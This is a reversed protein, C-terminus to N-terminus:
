SSNDMICEPFFAIPVVAAAHNSRPIILGDKVSTWNTAPDYIDVDKSTTGGLAILKGNVVSIAPRNNRANPMSPFPLWVEENLDLITVSSPDDAYRGGTVVLFDKGDLVMTTCGSNYAQTTPLHTWEQTDVNVKGAIGGGLVYLTRGKFTACLQAVKKPLRVNMEQWDNNAFDYVYIKDSYIWQTPGPGDYRAHFGGASYLKGNGHDMAYGSNAILEPMDSLRSWQRTELDLGHCDRFSSFPPSNGGLGGCAILTNGSFGMLSGERGMEGYEQPVDELEVPCETGDSKIVSVSPQHIGGSVVVVLDDATTTPLALSVYVFCAATLFMGTTVM